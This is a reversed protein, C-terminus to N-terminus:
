SAQFGSWAHLPEVGEQGKRQQRCRAAIACLLNLLAILGDRDVNGAGRRLLRAHSGHGLPDCHDPQEVLAVPDDAVEPHPRALCHPDLVHNHAKACAFGGRRPFGLLEGAGKDM